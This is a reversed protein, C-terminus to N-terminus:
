ESNVIGDTAVNKKMNMDIRVHEWLTSAVGALQGTHLATYGKPFQGSVLM